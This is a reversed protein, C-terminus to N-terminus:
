APTASTRATMVVVQRHYSPDTLTEQYGTMGTSFVAEGFTEGEAGFGEGRFTRRGRPRATRTSATPSIVHHDGQRAQFHVPDLRQTETVGRDAVVEDTLRFGTDLTYRRAGLDGGAPRARRCSRAPSARTTAPRLRLAAAPIRFSGAMRIVDLGEPSLNLRCMSRAGLGRAVVQDLWDGAIATGVYRAGGGVKADPLDRVSPAHALPPLDHQHRPSALGPWMGAYALVLPGPGRRRGPRWPEVDAPKGDLVTPVGRLFTAVVRGPLERGAYPTNRSLSATETSDVVQTVSPDYLVINAPEGAAIPRGHGSLRGIEAPKSSMREAVGAWDLLGTDVMTQQVSSLATEVAM